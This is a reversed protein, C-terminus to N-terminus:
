KRSVLSAMYTKGPRLEHVNSGGGRFLITVLQEQGIGSTDSIQIAVLVAIGDVPVVHEYVTGLFDGM